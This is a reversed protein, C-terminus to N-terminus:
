WDNLFNLKVFFDRLPGILFRQREYRNIGIFFIVGLAFFVVIMGQSILQAWTAPNEFFYRVLWLLPMFIMGAIIPRLCAGKIFSLVSLGLFKQVVFPTLILSTLTSAIATAIVVGILGYPTILVVIMLLGFVSGSILLMSVLRVYGAGTLLQRAVSSFYISFTSILLIQLLLAVSPYDGTIIYKEGIWLRYFDEALFSAILVLFITSLLMLRSGDHYLRKIELHENKAYFDVAVPYIAYAIPSLVDNIQKSLGRALGYYGVAAMPMFLGIILTQVHLSIFDNLSILFSWVGFSTIERFSDKTALGFSVKVEPVLLRAVRWRLSYDILSAGCTAISIGILSYGMKLAIYIFLTMLLRTGVGILNSLDFRQKAMFVAMYPFFVFQLSSTLGIILITWFVEYGMEYSITFIYPAICATGLSLLTFVIGLIIFALVATSFCESAKNYDQRALYLTLYQNIGGRFGLDLLGYYGVISSTLVWIGYRAEGLQHLVFPTLVLTVVANVAFGVWNSAINRLITAAKSM